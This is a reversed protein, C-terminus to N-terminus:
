RITKPWDLPGPSRPKPHDSAAAIMQSGSSRRYRGDRCNTIRARGIDSTDKYTFIPQIKEKALQCDGDPAACRYRNGRFSDHQLQKLNCSLVIIPNTVPPFRPPQAVAQTFRKAMVALDEVWGPIKRFRPYEPRHEM